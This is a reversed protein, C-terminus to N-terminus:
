RGALNTERAAQDSGAWQGRESLVRRLLETDDTMLGDVGMDLLSIMQAEANITWVHVQLGLQHIGDVLRQTLKIGRLEPPLQLCGFGGNLLPSLRRRSRVLFILWAAGRPGPSTCLRPGLRQRLRAIREDSFSGIGVRDIANHQQLALGLPEVSEDSKPDINFRAEPFEELLQDLTPIRHGNGLDVGALDAWTNDRIQGQLGSVRELGSDHFAVLVLDKTLHVDTELHEYGLSRSHSFAGITNEPASM